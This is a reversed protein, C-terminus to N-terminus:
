SNIPTRYSLLETLSWIHDTIGEAMAPTRPEGRTVGKVTGRRLSLHTRCLNYYATDLRMQQKFTELKKSFSLKKRSLRGNSQRMTLNNREACYTSIEDCSTQLLVDKVKQVSGIIVKKEINVVRGKERTKEVQAYLLGEEFMQIPRTMPRGRKGTKPPLVEQAYCAKIASPYEKLEDSTFLPPAGDSREKIGRIFEEADEKTHKGVHM